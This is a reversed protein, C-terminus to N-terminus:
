RCSACARTSALLPGVSSGAAGYAYQLDVLILFRRPLTVVRQGDQVAYIEEILLYAASGVRDRGEGM